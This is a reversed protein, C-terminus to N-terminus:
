PYLINPRSIAVKLILSPKRPLVSATHYIRKNQMTQQMLRVVCGALVSVIQHVRKSCLELFYAM